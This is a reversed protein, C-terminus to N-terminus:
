RGEEQSLGEFFSRLRRVRARGAGEVEEGVRERREWRRKRRGEAGRGWRAEREGFSGDISDKERTSFRNVLYRVSPRRSLQPTPAPTRPYSHSPLSAPLIHNKILKEQALDIDHPYSSRVFSSLRDRLLQKQLTLLTTLLPPSLHTTYTCHSQPYSTPIHKTSSSSSSNLPFSSSKPTPSSFASSPTNPNEKPQITMSNNERDHGKSKGEGCICAGINRVARDEKMGEESSWRRLYKKPLVGRELLTGPDPRMRLKKNLKIKLLNRSLERTTFDRRSLWIRRPSRLAELPPRQPLAYSLFNKARLLRQRHLLPDLSITRLRHSTKILSFLDSIDLYTLIALIIEDPLSSFPDLNITSGRGHTERALERNVIERKIGTGQDDEGRQAGGGGERGQFSLVDDSAGERAGGAGEVRPGEWAPTINREQDGLGDAICIASRQEHEKGHGENATTGSSLSRNIMPGLGGVDTDKEM